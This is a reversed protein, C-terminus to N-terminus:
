IIKMMVYFHCGQGKESRVGIRGNLRTTISRSIALGLGTGQQLENKKYFRDFVLKQEEKSLGIGTDEVYMEVENGTLSKEWGLTISGTKTFKCANTIFNTLVEQMRGEDIRIRLGKEGEKYIFKLQQPIQMRTANYVNKMLEEVPVEKINFKLYGSDIRSIDLVDNVLRLLLESNTNIIQIYEKREEPTNEINPDTLLNLFGIIANLPTRIEHNMNAMFSEKLKVEEAKKQAECLEQQIREQEDKLMDIVHGKERLEKRSHCLKVGLIITVGIFLILLILCFQEM